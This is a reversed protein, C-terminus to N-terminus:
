CSASDIFLFPRKGAKKHQYMGAAKRAGSRSNAGAHHVQFTIRLLSASNFFFMILSCFLSSYLSVEGKYRKNSAAPQMSSGAENSSSTSSTSKSGCFDPAM